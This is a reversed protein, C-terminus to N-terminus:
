IGRQLIRSQNRLGAARDKSKQDRKKQKTKQKKFWLMVLMAKGWLRQPKRRVLELSYHNSRCHFSFSVIMGNRNSYCPLEDQGRNPCYATRNVTMSDWRNSYLKMDSWIRQFVGLVCKVSWYLFLEKNAGMPRKKIQINFLIVNKYSCGFHFLLTTCCSSYQGM